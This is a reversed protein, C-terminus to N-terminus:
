ECYHYKRKGGTTVVLFRATHRDPADDLLTTDAQQWAFTFLGSTAHLTGNNANLVSQADRSNVIDGDDNAITVVLSVVAALALIVGDEDYLTVEYEPTEGERCPPMTFREVPTPM